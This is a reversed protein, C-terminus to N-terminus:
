SLRDKEISQSSMIEATGKTEGQPKEELIKVGKMQLPCCQM